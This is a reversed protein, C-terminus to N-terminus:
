QCGIVSVVAEVQLLTDATISSVRVIIGPGVGTWGRMRAASARGVTDCTAGEKTSSNRVASTSRLVSHLLVLAWGNMMAPAPVSAMSTASTLTTEGPWFIRTM